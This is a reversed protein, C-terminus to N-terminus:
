RNTRRKGEETVAFDRKLTKIKEVKRFRLASWDGDIAIQRVPEYGEDSLMGTVTDRSCDSNQYKKSTKKPYCLWFLADEAASKEVSKAISRLEDNTTGFVQIFDYSENIPKPHVEGKFEKIIENYSEPANIILVAQGQDKFQLKKLLDSM